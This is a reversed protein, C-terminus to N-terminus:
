PNPYPATPPTFNATWIPDDYVLRFEDIRGSISTGDSGAGSAGVVSNFLRIQWPAGGGVATSAESFVQTGDIFMRFTGGSDRTFAVHYYVGAVPNFVTRYGTSTSLRIRYDSTASDFDRAIRFAYQAGPIGFGCIARLGSFLSDFRLWFDFCFAQSAGLIPVECFVGNSQGGPAALCATGFKFSTTSHTPPTPGNLITWTRGAVKDSYTTTGNAGDWSNLSIVNLTLAVVTQSLTAQCGRGDRVRIVVAYDTNAGGGIAYTHNWALNDVYVKDRARGKVDRTGSVALRVLSAGAPATATVSSTQFASSGTNVVNGVAFDIPVGAANLWQLVVAGGGFDERNTGKSIRASATISTGPTVPVAQAHVLSSQGPGNYKASQTGADVLPASDIVWANGLLWNAAGSEFGLNPLAGTPTAAPWALTVVDTSQNVALSWGAPLTPTASVLEATIDGVANTVNFTGAYAQGPTHTPLTGSTGLNCTLATPRGFRALGSTM